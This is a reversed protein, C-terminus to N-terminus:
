MSKTALFEISNYMYLKMIEVIELLSPIFITRIKDRLNIQHNKSHIHTHTYIYIYPLSRHLYM